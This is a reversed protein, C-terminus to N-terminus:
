SREEILLDPLQNNNIPDYGDKRCLTCRQWVFQSLQFIVVSIFLIIFIGVSIYVAIEQKGGTSGFYLSLVAFFMLNVFLVMELVSVYYKRYVKGFIVFICLLGLTVFVIALLNGEDSGFPDASPFVVCVRALLLLGAWYRHRDKLPGYYADFLPRLKGLWKLGSLHNYRQLWHGLLILLTFPLWLIFFVAVSVAFLM